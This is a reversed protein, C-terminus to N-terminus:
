LDRSMVKTKLEVKDSIIVTVRAKQHKNNTNCIKKKKKCRIIELTNM